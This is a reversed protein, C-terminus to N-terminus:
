EDRLAHCVYGPNNSVYDQHYDEAPYFKEFPVIQTAASKDFIKKADFDRKSKEAIEKQEDNMYFIVSRYQTGVDPGQRNVETPNHLRWFIDLVESYSIIEPDFTILVSEAHGTKGTSVEKYTPNITNGGSYGSVADIIGPTEQLLYEVGWFCGGALVAQEFNFLEKYEGYGEKELDKYQIFRLAASNICFRAGGNPGDDFVHGLHSENTRVEVRKMGLSNDEKMEILSEDIPRSFAPWGTGSDYKDLSSFLPNGTNYDVYIGARHEDWYENDFPKETGGEKTVYESLESKTKTNEETMKEQKSFNSTTSFILALILVGVFLFLVETKMKNAWVDM